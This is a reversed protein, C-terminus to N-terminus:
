GPVDGPISEELTSEWPGHPDVGGGWGGAWWKEAKRGDSLGPENQKQWVLRRGTGQVCLCAGAEPDKCKNYGSDLISLNDM